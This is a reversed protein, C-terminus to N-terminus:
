ARALSTVREGLPPLFQRHFITGAAPRHPLAKVQAILDIARELRAPDIDGIGFRAGDPHAMELGLTGLLRARNARRDIAPNRRAVADIAADPDAIAAALGKNVATVFGRVAEPARAILDPSAVISAGALDPVWTRWEFHRLRDPDVDAEIAAARLTNVFGFLGAAGRGALMDPIMAKHPAPDIVVTVADPDIGTARAFEPFMKWAADHPHSLLRQGVLDAPTKIPGAADVAITYPSTNHMIFVVRPATEPMLAAMEIAANLDGYGVDYAGSAVRPNANALTDGETVDVELGAAKFHGLDEALFFWAQPGSFQTNLIMRLRM